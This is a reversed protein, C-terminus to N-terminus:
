TRTFRVFLVSCLERREIQRKTVPWNLTLSKENVPQYLAKTWSLASWPLSRMSTCKTKRIRACSKGLFAFPRLQWNESTKVTTIFWVFSVIATLCVATVLVQRHEFKVLGVGLGVDRSYDRVCSNKDWWAVSREWSANRSSVITFNRLIVSFFSSALGQTVLTVIIKNSFFTALRWRLNRFCEFAIGRDRKDYLRKAARKKRGGQQKFGCTVAAHSVIVVVDIANSFYM